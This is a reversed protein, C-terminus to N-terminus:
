ENIEEYKNENNSIFHFLYVSLYTTDLYCVDFKKNNLAPHRLQAPSARFDGCHLIRLKKRSGRNSEFVFLVSGPCSNLCSCLFYM